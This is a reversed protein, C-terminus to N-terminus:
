EAEEKPARLSVIEGTWPDKQFVHAGEGQPEMRGPNEVEVSWSEEGRNRSQM